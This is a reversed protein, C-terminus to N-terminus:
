PMRGADRWKTDTEPICGKHCIVHGFAVELVTDCTKALVRDIHALGKRYAETWEDYFCADSYIYDSVIVIDQLGALLAYFDMCIKEAANLNITFDLGSPMFMENSLLATASDLLFSGTNDCMSLIASIDRQCEVTQFGWGDREEQHRRIREADEDDAPCMTAIYYLPSGGQEKALRQAYYSKGNKCGGSILIKM